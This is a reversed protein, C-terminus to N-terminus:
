ASSQIIYEHWVTGDHYTMEIEDVEIRFLSGYLRDILDRDFVTTEGTNKCPGEQPDCYFYKGPDALGSTRKGWVRSYFKCDRGMLARITSLCESIEDIANAYVSLNDVIFGFRDQVVHLQNFDLVRCQIYQEKDTGAIRNELRSIATQSGDIALVDFGCDALMISNAGAGCGLDLCKPRVDQQVKILSMHHKAKRVLDIEPYTGWHKTKHQEEWHM